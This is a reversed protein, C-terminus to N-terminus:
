VLEAFEALRKAYKDGLPSLGSDGGIKRETNYVSEGHRTLYITRKYPHVSSCFQVMRSGLFTTLMNNALVKQNFNIVKMYSLDDEAGDNQITVYDQSYEM